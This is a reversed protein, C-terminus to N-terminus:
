MSECVKPNWTGPCGPLQFCSAVIGWLLDNNTYLLGYDHTVPEGPIKKQPVCEPASGLDLAGGLRVRLRLGRRQARAGPPRPGGGGLGPGSRGLRRSPGLLPKQIESSPALSGEQFAGFLPKYRTYILLPVKKFRGSCPISTKMHAFVFLIYRVHQYLYIYM